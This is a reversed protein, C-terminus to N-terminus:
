NYDKVYDVSLIAAMSAFPDREKDTAMSVSRKKSHNISLRITKDDYIPATKDM